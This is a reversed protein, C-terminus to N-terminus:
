AEDRATVVVIGLDRAARRAVVVLRAAEVAVRGAIHGRAARAVVLPCRALAGAHRLLGVRLRGIGQERAGHRIALWPREPVSCPRRRPM